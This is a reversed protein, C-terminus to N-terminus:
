FVSNDCKSSKEAALCLWLLPIRSIVCALMELSFGIGELSRPGQTSSKESSFADLEGRCGCRAGSCLSHFYFRRGGTRPKM